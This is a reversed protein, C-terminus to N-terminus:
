QGPKYLINGLLMGRKIYNLRHKKPNIIKCRLLWVKIKENL